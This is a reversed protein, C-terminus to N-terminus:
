RTAIWILLGAQFVSFAVLCTITFRLGGEERSYRAVREDKERLQAEKEQLSLEAQQLMSAADLISVLQIKDGNWGVKLQGVQAQASHAKLRQADTYIVELGAGQLVHDRRLRTDENLPSKHLLETAEIRYHSWRRQLWVVAQAFLFRGLGRNSPELQLGAEAGLRVVQQDHDVWVDLQNQEKHVKQGPLRIELRLLSCIKSHREAHGYEVFRLPRAGSTGDTPLPALRLLQFHEPSVDAWLLTEGPPTQQEEGVKAAAPTDSM